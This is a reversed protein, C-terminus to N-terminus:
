NRYYHCCCCTSVHKFDASFFDIEEINGLDGVEELLRPDLM